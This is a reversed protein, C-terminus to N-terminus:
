RGSAGGRGRRPRSAHGKGANLKELASRVQQVLKAFDCTPTGERAIFVYDHGPRLLDRPLLRVAERLRRRARNRVVAKGIRKTVTFGVRAPADDGRARMQVVVCPMPRFVARAAALFDRRQRIRPPLAGYGERRTTTRANEREGPM